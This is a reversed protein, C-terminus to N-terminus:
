VPDLAFEPDDLEFVPVITPEARPAAASITTATANMRHSRPRFLRFDPSSIISELQSGNEKEVLIYVFQKKLGLRDHIQALIRECGTEWRCYEVREHKRRSRWHHRGVSDELVSYCEQHTVM